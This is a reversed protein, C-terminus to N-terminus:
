RDHLWAPEDIKEVDRLYAYINKIGIGSVVREWSVRGNLTERLYELLAIERDDAGCFRLARGRVSDASADQGDWILLAEGLGTGAAILGAHGARM